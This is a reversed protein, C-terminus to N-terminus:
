SRRRCLSSTAAAPRGASRPRACSASAPPFEQAVHLSTTWWPTVKPASSAAAPEIAAASKPAVTWGRIPRADVVAREHLVDGLRKGLLGLVDRDFGELA